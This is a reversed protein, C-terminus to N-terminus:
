ESSMLQKLNKAAVRTRDALARLSEVEEALLETGEAIESSASDVNKSALALQEMNSIVQSSYVSQTAVSERMRSASSAMLESERSITVGVEIQEKISNSAASVKEVSQGAGTRILEFTRNVKETLKVSEKISKIVHTVIEAIKTSRSSSQAALDKIEHAIVAFGKGAEGSHAAEISANMSLLDTQKAFDDLATVVSLIEASSKQIDEIVFLLNRMDDSGSTTLTNLSRTFTEASVIGESVNSIGQMVSKTGDATTKISETTADFEANMSSLSKALQNITDETHSYISSRKKIAEKIVDVKERSTFTAKTVEEVSDALEESIDATELSLKQAKTLIDAIRNRQEETEKALKAVQRQSASSRMSLTIFIALDLAFFSIAQTWMFPVKGILMYIVDHLALISGVTFGLFMNIAYPEHRKLAKTSTVFGYVIVLVIPLLMINFLNDMAVQKGICVFYSVFCVVSFGYAINRMLAYHKRDFFRNLFLALFVLSVPLCARCLSRNFNYPFLIIQSGIDFLYISIFFMSIAFNLYAFDKKNGLYTAFCYLM